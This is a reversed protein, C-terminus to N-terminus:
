GSFLMFMIHCTHRYDWCDPPLPLFWGVSYTLFFFLSSFTGLSITWCNFAGAVLVSLMFKLGLIGLNWKCLLLFSGIGQLNDESMWVHTGTAHMSKCVYVLLYIFTICISLYTLYPTVPAATCAWDDGVSILESGSTFRNGFFRVVRAEHCKFEGPMHLYVCASNFYLLLIKYKFFATWRRLMFCIRRLARFVTLNVRAVVTPQFDLCKDYGCESLYPWTSLHKALQPSTLVEM